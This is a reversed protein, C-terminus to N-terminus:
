ASAADAGKRRAIRRRMRRVAIRIAQSMTLDLTRALFEIDQRTREDARFTLVKVKSLDPSVAKRM